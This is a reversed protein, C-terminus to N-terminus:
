LVPYFSYVFVQDEPSSILSQSELLVESGNQSARFNDVFVALGLIMAFTILMIFLKLNRDDFSLSQYVAGMWEFFTFRSRSVFGTTGNLEVKMNYFRSESQVGALPAYNFLFSPFWAGISMRGQVGEFEATHSVKFFDNELVVLSICM